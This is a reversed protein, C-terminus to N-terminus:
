LRRCCTRLGTAGETILTTIFEANTASLWEVLCLRCKDVYCNLHSEYISQLWCLMTVFATIVASICLVLTTSATVLVSGNCGDSGCTFICARYIRDHNKFTVYQCSNFMDRSSCFRTTGVVGSCYCYVYLLSIRLVSSRILLVGTMCASRVSALLQCAINYLIHAADLRM